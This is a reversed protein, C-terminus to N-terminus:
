SALIDFLDKEALAAWEREAGTLCRVDYEDPAKFYRGGYNYGEAECQPCHCQLAYPAVSATHGTFKVSELTNNERGCSSCTFHAKRPATGKQTDFTTGDSLVMIEPLIEGRYEVLQLNLFRKKYWAASLEAPAGAYGGLEVGNADKGVAGKLWDPHILLYMQVSKRKINFVKKNPKISKNAPSIHQDLIDVFRKGSFGGCHPCNLGPESGASKKLESAREKKEDKTGQDYNKLMQAFSQSLETFPKEDEAVIREIGPAM